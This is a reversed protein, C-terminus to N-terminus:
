AIDGIIITIASRPHACTAPSPLPSCQFSNEVQNEDDIEPPHQRKGGPIEHGGIGASLPHEPYSLQPIGRCISASPEKRKRCRFVHQPIRCSSADHEKIDASLIM